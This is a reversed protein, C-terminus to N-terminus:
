LIVNGEVRAGPAGTALNPALDLNSGKLLTLMEAAIRDWSLWERIGPTMDCRQGGGVTKSGALYFKKIAAVALALDVRRRLRTDHGCVFENQLELWVISAPPMKRGIEECSTHMPLAVPTGCGLAETVGLGWGEGLTTTLYLDAASYLNPLMAEPVADLCVFDRGDVLGMQKAARYLHVGTGSLPAMRMVLKAPVKEQRLLALIELSRMPDKRWENRNVNLMLFDDSGAFPRAAIRIEARAALRAKKGASKFYDELGHPLVRVVTSQPNRVRSEVVKKGYETFTVPCDVHEVIELWETEPAADVPFYLMSRIGHKKCCKELMLPFTRDGAGVCLADPDMLMWCHTYGPRAGALQEMFRTLQEPSRWSVRGASAPFLQWPVDRYGHGDFGVAWIDIEVGHASWREFINKAVRAFGTLAQGARVAPSDCLALIKMRRSM